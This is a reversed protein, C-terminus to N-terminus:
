KAKRSKNIKKGLKAMGVNAGSSTLTFFLIFLLMQKINFPNVLFFSVLTSSVLNLPLLYKQPFGFKIAHESIGIVITSAITIDKIDEL